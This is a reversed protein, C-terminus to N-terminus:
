VRTATRNPAYRYCKADAVAKVESLKYIYYKDPYRMWLYTSIANEYRYHQAAGNGYRELLSNSKQKFGNIREYVDRSEDFLKIFMARVEEEAIEAFKTIMRAPFYKDSALLNATQALAKTLM